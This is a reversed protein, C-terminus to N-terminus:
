LGVRNKFKLSCIERKSKLRFLSFIAYSCPQLFFYCQFARQLLLSICFLSNARQRRKVVLKLVM